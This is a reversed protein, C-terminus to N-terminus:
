SDNIKAVRSMGCPTSTNIRVQLDLGDQDMFEGEDAHYATGAAGAAGTAGGGSSARRPTARAASGKDNGDKDKGDKGKGKGKVPNLEKGKFEAAKAAKGAKSPKSDAAVAPEHVIPSTMASM